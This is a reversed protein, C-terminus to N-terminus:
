QTVQCDSFSSSLSFPAGGYSGSLNLTGPLDFGGVDQYGIAVDLNTAEEPKGTQYVAHYSALLLGNSTASYKPEIDSNFESTVVRVDTLVYNPDMTLTVDASGDKYSVIYFEGNRDIQYKVGSGPFPSTTVFSKWTDFFGSLMQNAGDYVQRLGNEMQQNTADPSNHTTVVTNDANLKTLFYIKSLVVIAADVGSPNQVRASQLM